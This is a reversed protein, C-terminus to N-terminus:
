WTMERHCSKTMCESQNRWPRRHLNQDRGSVDGGGGGPGAGVKDDRQSLETMCEWQNRWPRRHLNQDRGSVDGGGGGPSAGVKDDRQSLEWDYMGVSEELAALTLKSRTRVCGRGRGLPWSRGQWRETVVRLWVNGSIGGPVGIYTKIEDQCM